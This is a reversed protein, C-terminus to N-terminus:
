MEILGPVLFKGNGEFRRAGAPIITEAAPGIAAIRDDRILVTANEIPPAGTGSIVTVNQIAILHREPTQADGATAQRGHHRSKVDGSSWSVMATLLAPLILRSIASFKNSRSIM